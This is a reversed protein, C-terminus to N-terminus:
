ASPGSFYWKGNEFYWHPEASGPNVHLVGGVPPFYSADKCLVPKEHLYMKRATELLKKAETERDYEPGFQMKGASDIRLALDSGVWSEYIIQVTHQPVPNNIWFNAHVGTGLALGAVFCFTSIAVQYRM